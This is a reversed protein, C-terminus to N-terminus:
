EEESDSTEKRNKFFDESLIEVSLNENSSIWSIDDKSLNYHYDTRKSDKNYVKVNFTM